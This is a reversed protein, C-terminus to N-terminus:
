YNPGAYLRRGGQAGWGLSHVGFRCRRCEQSRQFCCVDPLKDSCCTQFQTVVLGLNAPSFCALGKCKSVVHSHAAFGFSSAHQIIAAATKLLVVCSMHLSFFLVVADQLVPGNIQQQTDNIRKAGPVGLGMLDLKLHRTSGQWAM